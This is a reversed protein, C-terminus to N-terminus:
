QRNNHLKPANVLNIDWSDIYMDHTCIMFDYTRVFINETDIYNTMVRRQSLRSIYIEEYM